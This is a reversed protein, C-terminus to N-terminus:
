NYVEEKVLCPVWKTKLTKNTKFLYLNVIEGM